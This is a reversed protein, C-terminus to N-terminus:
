QTLNGCRWGPGHGKMWMPLGNEDRLKLTKGDQQKLELAVNRGGQRTNIKSVSVTVTDGAKIAFGQDKLYWFPAVLVDLKEGNETVIEIYPFGQGPGLYVREVKGRVPTASAWDVGQLCFKCDSQARMAAEGCCHHDHSCNGCGSPTEMAAQGCYHHGPHHSLMLSPTLLVLPLAILLGLLKSLNGLM